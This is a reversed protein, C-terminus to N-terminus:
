PASSAVVVPDTAVYTETEEYGPTGFVKGLRYWVGDVEAPPADDTTWSLAAAFSGPATDPEHLEFEWRLPSYKEYGEFPAHVPDVIVAPLDMTLSRSSWGFPGMWAVSMESTFQLPPEAVTVEATVPVSLLPEHCLDPELLEAVDGHALIVTRVTTREGTNHWTVEAEVGEGLEALWGELTRGDPLAQETVPGSSVVHEPCEGVTMNQCASLMLCAASLHAITLRRDLHLHRGVDRSPQSRGRIVLLRLARALGYFQGMGVVVGGTGPSTLRVRIPWFDTSM